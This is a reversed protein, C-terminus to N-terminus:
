RHNVAGAGDSVRSANGATVIEKKFVPPLKNLQDLTTLPQAHEDVTDKGKKAKVETPAM